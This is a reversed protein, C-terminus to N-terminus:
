RRRNGRSTYTGDFLKTNRKKKNKGTRAGGGSSEVPILDILRSGRGRGGGSKKVKKTKETRGSPKKKIPTKKPATAKPSAKPADKKLAVKKVQKKAVKKKALGKLKKFASKLSSAGKSLDRRLSSGKSPDKLMSGTERFRKMRKNQQGKTRTRM